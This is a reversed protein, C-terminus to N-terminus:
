HSNDPSSLYIFGIQTKHIVYPVSWFADRANLASVRKGGTAVIEFKIEGM